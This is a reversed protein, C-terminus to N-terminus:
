WRPLCGQGGSCKTARACSLTSIKAVYLNIGFPPPNVPLVKGCITQETFYSPGIVHIYGKGDVAISPGLGFGGGSPILANSAGVTRGTKADFQALFEYFIVGSTPDPTGTLAVGGLDMRSAQSFGSMYVYKGSKLVALPGPSTVGDTGGIIKSWAVYPRVKGVQYKIIIAQGFPSSGPDLTINRGAKDFGINLPGILTGSVYIGGRKDTALSGPFGSGQFSQVTLAEGTKPKLEVLLGGSTVPATKGGFNLTTSLTAGFFVLKNKTLAVGDATETSDGPYAKVWQWVNKRSLHAIYIDADGGYTQPFGNLTYQAGPAVPIVAGAVVTGTVWVAGNKVVMGFTSPNVDLTNSALTSVSKGQGTKRALRAVFASQLGGALASSAPIGSFTANGQFIGYVICEKSDIAVAFPQVREFGNTTQVTFAKAWVAQGYPDVLAVFMQLSGDAAPVSLPPTQFPQLPTGVLNGGYEATVCSYGKNDAAVNGNSFTTGTDPGGYTQSWVVEGSTRGVLHTAAALLLLLAAPTTPRM